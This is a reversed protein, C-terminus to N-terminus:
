NPSPRQKLRVAATTVVNDVVLYLGDELLMEGVAQAPTNSYEALETLSLGRLINENCEAKLSAADNEERKKM